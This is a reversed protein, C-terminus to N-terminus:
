ACPLIWVRAAAIRMVRRRNTCWTRPIQCLLSSLLLICVLLLVLTKSQSPDAETVALDRAVAETEALDVHTTHNTELRTIAAAM